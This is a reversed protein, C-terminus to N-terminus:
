EGPKIDVNLKEFCEFIVGLAILGFSKAGFEGSHRLSYDWTDWALRLADRYTEAPVVEKLELQPGTLPLLVQKIDKVLQSTHGRMRWMRDKRWRRQTCKALITGAVVEAELLRVGPTNSLTHTACIYRLESEYRRFLAITERSEGDPEIYPWLQHQIYTRLTMSLTDTSLPSVSHKDSTSPDSPLMEPTTWKISRFM